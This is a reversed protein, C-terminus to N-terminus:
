LMGASRQYVLHSERRAQEPRIHLEFAASRRCPIEEEAGTDVADPRTIRCLYSVGRVCPTGPTAVRVRPHKVTPGRQTLGSDAALIEIDVEYQWGTKARADFRVARSHYSELRVSLIVHAGRKPFLLSPDRRFSEYSMERVRYAASSRVKGRYCM